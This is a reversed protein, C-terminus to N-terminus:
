SRLFNIPTLGYSSNPMYYQQSGAIPQNTRPDISTTEYMTKNKRLAGSLQLGQGVGSLTNQIGTQTAEYGTNASIQGLGQGIQAGAIAGGATTTAGLMGAAGLVGGAVAGAVMGTVAFATARTKQQKQYKKYMKEAYKQYDHVQQARDSSAYSFYTEGALSSDINALAGAASSSNAVTSYNGVELQARAIREQRINSLLNRRFEQESQYDQVDEANRLAQEARRKYKKGSSYIGM